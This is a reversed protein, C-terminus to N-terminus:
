DKKQKKYLLFRPSCWPYEAFIFIKLFDGRMSAYYPSFFININVAAKIKKKKRYSPVTTYFSYTNNLTKKWKRFELELVFLLLFFITNNM